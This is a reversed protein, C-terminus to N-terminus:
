LTLAELRGKIEQLSGQLARDQQQLKTEIHKVSTMITSHDRSFLKGITQFPLHLTHRCLYIAVQRPLTHTHLQSKGVLDSLDIGYVQCTIRQITAASLKETSQDRILPALLTTLKAATLDEPKLHDLHARLMLSSLAQQMAKASKFHSLLFLQSEQSLPFQMAQLKQEMMISLHEEQLPHLHLNIGWEFRSVLRQEIGELHSPLCNATLILQKKQSYLTNFTHFFEEQTAYKSSLIHVDDILLIDVHRYHHRFPHMESSRIAHIVHETFTDMKAYLANIGQSKFLLALSTLLHTKGCSQGGWIYIPNFTGLPLSASSLETCLRHIPANAGTLLLNEWTMLPDLPDKAFQLRPKNEPIVIKKESATAHSISLHVKIPKSSSSLFKTKLVPRIHEDFWAIQFPDDAELYLNMSDFHAIRLCRLWKNVVESGLLEQQKDLFEIWAKM